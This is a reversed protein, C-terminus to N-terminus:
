DVGLQDRLKSFQDALATAGDKIKAKEDASLTDYAKGNQAALLSKVASAQADVGDLVKPDVKVIIPRLVDATKASGEILGAFVQLDTHAYRDDGTDGATSAFRNIASATGALMRDPSIRLARIRDKLGAADAVLKAAVPQLGDLSKQDFLGYELRHLGGFAPDQERKEFFDARANIATDLDSLAESVPAIRAYAERAPAYAAQAAELNGSSVADSLVGVAKQFEAVETALYIQYEALAGLFATLPLKGKEAESTASPTVILKGRPNSLLGCTIQYEGPSLKASLTQKFGPAINEREELVMVGDLIEWEVSRDSKNVIEFVTRGAPVTLENPECSKANIIVQVKGDADAHRSKDSVKSAYYFAAGAALVLLIALVLVARVLNRSFPAAPKSDQPKTM